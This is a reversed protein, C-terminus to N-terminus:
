VTTNYIAFLMICTNSMMRAWKNYIPIPPQSNKKTWTSILVDFSFFAHLWIIINQICAHNARYSIHRFTDSMIRMCPLKRMYLSLKTQRSTMNKYVIRTYGHSVINVYGFISVCHRSFDSSKKWLYSKFMQLKNYLFFKKM